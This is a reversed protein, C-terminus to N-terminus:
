HRQRVDMYQHLQYDNIIVIIAKKGGYVHVCM